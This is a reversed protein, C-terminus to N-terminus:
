KLQFISVTKFLEQPIVCSSSPRTGLRVRHISKPATLDQITKYGYINEDVEVSLNNLKTLNNNLMNIFATDPESSSASDSRAEPIGLEYVSEYIVEEPKSEIEKLNVYGSIMSVTM